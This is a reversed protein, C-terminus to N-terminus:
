NADLGYSRLLAALGEQWGQQVARFKWEGNHKYIEGFIVTTEISADEGLDFRAIEKQTEDDVMRIYANSVQGFNVGSQSEDYINVAFVIKQVDDPINQLDVKIVEDDGDGAGTRNDGTHVLAGGFTSTRDIGRAKDEPATFGLLLYHETPAKNEANVAIACADLDFAVGDTARTDWGLGVLLKKLTPAEKTLSINGGKRLSISM